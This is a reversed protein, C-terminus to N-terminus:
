FAMLLFGSATTHIYKDYGEQDSPVKHTDKGPTLNTGAPVYLVGEEVTTKGTYAPAQTLTLTGSGKKTFNASTANGNADNGIATAFTRNEGGDDLIATKADAFAFKESPDSTVASTLALTGGNFYIFYNPISTNSMFKVTGANVEYSRVYRGDIEFTGEGVMRFSSARSANNIGTYALAMTENAPLAGGVVYVVTHHSSANSENITGTLKGFQYEPFDNEVNNGLFNNGSFTVDWTADASTGSTYDVSSTHNVLQGSMGTINITGGFHSNDGHLQHTNSTGSLTLCGTGSLTGDLTFGVGNLSTTLVAPTETAATIVFGNALTKNAAISFGGGNGLTIKYDGTLTGIAIVNGSFTAVGKLILEQVAVGEIDVNVEANAPFEVVDGSTPLSTAVASGVNWNGLTSWNSDSVANNTWVYNAQTATLTASMGGEAIVINATRAGTAGTFTFNDATLATGSTVTVTVSAGDAMQSIDVALQAGESISLSAITVDAGPVVLTGAEIVTAATYTPVAGLVLTGAGQKVLGQPANVTTLATGWTSTQGAELLVKLPATSNGLQGSIDLINDGSDVCNAGYAITGGTFSFTPYAYSTASTASRLIGNNDFKLVGNNLEYYNFCPNGAGNGFTMTGTGVKKLTANNNARDAAASSSASLSCRFDTNLGGISITDGSVSQCGMIFINGEYSGFHITSNTEGIAGVRADQHGNAGGTYVWRASASGSDASCFTFPGRPGKDQDIICVGSFGGNNGYFSTGSRGSNCALRINGTGTLNGHIKIARGNSGDSSTSYIFNTSPSGAVDLDAYWNLEGDNLALDASTLKVGNLVIKDGAVDASGLSVLGILGFAANNGSLTLVVDSALVVNAVAQNATLTVSANSEFTVTDSSGPISGEEQAVSNYNWNRGDSWNNNGEYAGTWVWGSADVSTYTHMGEDYNVAVGSAGTVTGTIAYSGAVITIGIGPISVDETVNCELTVTKGEGEANAAAADVAAQVTSYYTTAGSITISAPAKNFTVTGNTEDVDAVTGEATTYTSGYPIVLTEGAGVSIAATVNLKGNQVTGSGSLSAITQTFGGLDLVSGASMTVDATSPLMQHSLADTLRWKQMLAAEVAARKELTATDNLGIIEAVAGSYANKGTHGICIGRNSSNPVSDVTSVISKKGIVYIRSSENNKGDVYVMWGRDPAGSNGDGWGYWVYRKQNYVGSGYYLEYGFRVQNNGNQHDSFLVQPTGAGKKNSDTGIDDNEQYVAFTMNPRVKSSSETYYAVGPSFKMVTQGDFYDSSTVLQISETASSHKSFNYGRGSLTTVYKNGNDDEITWKSTDSSDFGFTYSAGDLYNGLKLTGSNIAIDGTFTNPGQLTVIGDGTKTFSSGGTISGYFTSTNSCTVNSAQVTAGGAIAAATLDGTAALKITYAEHANVITSTAEAPTFTITGSVDVDGSVTIDGYGTITLDGAATISAAVAADGALAVSAGAPFSATDVATPIAGGEWNGTDSWSTSTAGTWACTGPEKALTYTTVGDATVFAVQKGEVDTTVKSSDFTSPLKIAGAKLVVNGTFTPLAALVLTGDGLKTLGGGTSQADEVLAQNVTTELGSPINFKAGGAKVNLTWNADNEIINDKYNGDNYSTLTGGNFNIVAPATDCNLRCVAMEGGDLNITGGKLFAWKASGAYGFSVFGSSLTFTGTGGNGILPDGTTITLSAGNVTVSGTAGSGGVYMNNFSYTGSTFTATGENSTGVNLVDTSVLGDSASSATFKVNYSKDPDNETITLPKSINVVSAFNITNDNWENVDYGTTGEDILFRGWNGATAWDTSSDGTWWDHHTTDASYSYVGNSASTNAGPVAKTASAPLTVTCGSTEVVVAGCFGSMDGKFTLSGTGKVTITGTGSVPAAITVANAGVDVTGGKSTVQVSFGSGILGGATGEGLAELTGGNFILSCTGHERVLNWVKLTGNQNLTVDATTDDYSRGYACMKMTQDNASGCTLIANDKVSEDTTGIDIAIKGYAGVNSGFIVGKNFALSGKNVNVTVTVAKTPDNEWDGYGAELLEEYTLSGGNMELIATRGQGWAWWNCDSSTAVYAGSEIILKSDGFDGVNISNATVGKSTTGDSSKFVVANETGNRLSVIHGSADYSDSFTVEVEETQPDFVYWAETSDDWNWEKSGGYWFFDAWAGGVALTALIVFVPKLCQATIRSFMSKIKTTM